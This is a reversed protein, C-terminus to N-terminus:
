KSEFTELFCSYKTIDIEDHTYSKFFPINDQNIPYCDYMPNTSDIGYIRQLNALPIDLLEIEQVLADNEKDYCAIVRKIM